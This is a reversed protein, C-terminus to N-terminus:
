VYGYLEVLDLGDFLKNGRSGTDVKLIYESLRSETQKNSGRQYQYGSAAEQHLPLCLAHPYINRSAMTKPRKSPTSYHQAARPLGPHWYTHWLCAHVSVTHQKKSDTSEYEESNPSQSTIQHKPTDPLRKLSQTQGKCEKEVTEQYRL